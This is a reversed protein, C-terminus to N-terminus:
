KSDEGFEGRKRFERYRKEIASVYSKTTPFDMTAELDDAGFEAGPASQSEWRRVHTRGANYEALAFPIPNDKATWRQLARALYWTGVEINTKPDFLDTPVFTGVKEIRVWDKAAAETIQMLGREGDQGVSDPVFRTERWIVAKILSPSVRHKTAAQQILFDYRAYRSRLFFEQLAYNEGNAKIFIWAGAALLLGLVLALLIKGKM